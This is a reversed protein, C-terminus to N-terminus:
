RLGTECDKNGKKKKEFYSIINQLREIDQEELDHYALYIDVEVSKHSRCLSYVMVSTPGIFKTNAAILINM